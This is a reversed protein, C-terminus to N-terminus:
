PLKENENRHYLHLVINCHSKRFSKKLDELGLIIFPSEIKSNCYLNDVFILAKNDGSGLFGWFGLVLSKLNKNLNWKVLIKLDAEKM